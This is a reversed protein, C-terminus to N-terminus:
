EDAIQMIFVGIISVPIYIWFLFWMLETAEVVKLIKFLLYYWIPSSILLVIASGIVKTKSM